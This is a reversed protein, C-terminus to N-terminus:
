EFFSTFDFQKLESNYIYMRCKPPEERSIVNYIQGCVIEGMTTCLPNFYKNFNVLLKQLTNMFKENELPFLFNYLKLHNEIFLLKKQYQQSPYQKDLLMEKNLDRKAINKRYYLELLCIAFKFYEEENEFFGKQKIKNYFQDNLKYYPSINIKLKNNKDLYINNYYFGFIGSTNICYFYIDKRSFYEDYWSLESFTKFGACAFTIDEKMQSLDDLKIISVISSLEKLKNMILDVRKKGLDNPQLFYNSSIDEQQVNTNDYLYLSFGKAILRKALESITTDLNILLVKNRAIKIAMDQPIYNNESKHELLQEFDSYKTENYKTEEM